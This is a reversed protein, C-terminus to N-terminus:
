GMRARWQFKISELALIREETIQSKKGEQYLRYQYRQKRVWNALQKNESWQNPVNCNGYRDRYEKLENFRQQWIDERADWSFGIDELAQIREETMASKKEEQYLRYQQRQTHVWDGLPRNESWEKPVNCDGYIAKYNNVEDLRVEWETLIKLAWEFGISELARIRERTMNSKRRPTSGTASKKNTLLQYQDRQTNIWRALSPNEKWARPVNCNGYVRKYELLEYFREYWREEFVTLSRGDRRANQVAAAYADSWYYAYADSWYNADSSYQACLPRLSRSRHNLGCSAAAARVQGYHRGPWKKKRTHVGHERPSPSTSFACADSALYSIVVIRLLPLAFRGAAAGRSSSGTINMGGM